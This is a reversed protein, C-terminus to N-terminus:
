GVRVVWTPDVAALIADRVEVAREAIRSEVTVEVRHDESGFKPYSGLKVEPHEAHLRMLLQSLQHEAARLFVRHVQYPPEAGLWPVLGDVKERLFRPVGPFVFVNEIRILPYGLDDVMEAGEPLCVMRDWSPDPEVGYQQQLRDVLPQYRTLAVGLGRAVGEFTVDDHTSGIGGSTLVIDLRNAMDRIDAAIAPVDDGVMVMRLLDVGRARLYSALFPGNEDRIKGSLIEDGIILVGATPM